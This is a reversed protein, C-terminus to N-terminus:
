NHEEENKDKAFPLLNSVKSKVSELIGVDETPAHDDLCQDLAEDLITGLANQLYDSFRKSSEAAHPCYTTTVCLKENYSVMSISLGLGNYLPNVIRLEVLENNELYLPFQPGPINAIPLNFM